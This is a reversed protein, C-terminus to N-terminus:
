RRVREAVVAAAIADPNPQSAVLRQIPKLATQLSILRAAVERVVALATSQQFMLRALSRSNDQASEVRPRQSVEYAKLLAAINNTNAHRLIRTLVWASEIAMGAGVGATPLFGAAADGLLVTHGNAWVPARCDTMPWYYPDPDSAVATLARDTRPAVINLRHRVDAVFAAAGANTDENSGGLFVGLRGQVPYVGLFYGAGWFEDVLDTDEDNPAWVVWGGWQTDVVTVPRGGLALKRTSSHMGDAVIVVDFVYQRAVDGTTLTVNVESAGEALATATTAFAVDCGHASLTEILEGRGIGRYDGYQAFLSAMSDERLLRGTHTHLGYRALLTSNQRYHDHVDLDDLAPDVMPLLALMYGPHGQDKNREILTPHRGDRRLIQAATVGAIGAGVILVRLDDEQTRMYQTEVSVANLM